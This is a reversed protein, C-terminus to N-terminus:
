WLSIAQLAYAPLLRSIANTLRQDVSAPPYSWTSLGWNPPKLNEGGDLLGYSSRLLPQKTSSPQLSHWTKSAALYYRKRQKRLRRKREELCCNGQIFSQIFTFPFSFRWSERFWKLSNSRFVPKGNYFALCMQLSSNVLLMSWIQNIKM